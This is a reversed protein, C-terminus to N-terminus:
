HLKIPGLATKGEAGVTRQVHAHRLAALGGGVEDVREVLGVKGVEDKIKALLAIRPPDRARDNACPRDRARGFQRLDDPADDRLLAVPDIRRCACELRQPDDDIVLDTGQGASERRGLPQQNGAPPQSHDRKM